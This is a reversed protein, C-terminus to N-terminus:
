QRTVEQLRVKALARHRFGTTQWLRYIYASFLQTPLVGLESALAAFEQENVEALNDRIQQARTPAGGAEVADALADCCDKITPM